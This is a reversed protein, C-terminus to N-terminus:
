LRLLSCRQISLLIYGPRQQHIIKSLFSFPLKSCGTFCLAWFWLLHARLSDKSQWRDNISDWVHGEWAWADALSGHFLICTCSSHPVLPSGPRACLPSEKGLTEKARAMSIGSPATPAMRTNTTWSEKIVQFLLSQTHESSVSVDSFTLGYIQLWLVRVYGPRIPSVSFVPRSGGGGNSLGNRFM